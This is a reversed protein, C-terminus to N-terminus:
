AVWIPALLRKTLSEGILSSMLETFTVLLAHSADVALRTDCSALRLQLNDLLVTSCGEHSPEALSPYSKGAVHLSRRLLAHIGQGGIVPTLRASAENWTDITANAFATADAYEGARLVLTKRIMEHNM